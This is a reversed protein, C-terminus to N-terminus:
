RSYFKLHLLKNKPEFAGRVSIDKNGLYKSLSNNDIDIQVDNASWLDFYINNEKKYKLLSDKKAIINCEEIRKGDNNDYSIYIKTKKNTVIKFIYPLNINFRLKYSKEDILNSKDFNVSSLLTDDIINNVNTTTIDNQSNEFHTTEIKEKQNVNLYSILLYISIISISTFFISFIKRPKFFYSEKLNFKTDSNINNKDDFILKNKIESKVDLEKEKKDISISESDIGSQEKNISLNKDLDNSISSDKEKTSLNRIEDHKKNQYSKLTLNKFISKKSINKEEEYKNLIEESNVKLFDAYSKIFLRLFTSPIADFDGKEILKLYQINIKTADSISQLNIEQSKRLEKLFIHFPKKDLKNTM